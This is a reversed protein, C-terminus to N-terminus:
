SRKRENESLFARLRTKAQFITAKVGGTSIRMITAIETQPLEEIAFLIFCARMREPLRGIAEELIIRMEQQDSIIAPEPRWELRQQRQRRGIADLCVNIVIRYLYTDFSSRFQFRGIGRYLKIFTNQVADEAEARDGLMRLATRLLSSEYQEYITRFASLDGRQCRDIIERKEVDQM